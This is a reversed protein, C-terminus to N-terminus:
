SECKSKTESLCDSLWIALQEVMIDSTFKHLFRQKAKDALNERLTKDSLMRELAKSLAAVNAPPIVLAEEENCVSETNGGVDTSIISKKARMAELLAISHNEALSPLVFIDLAALCDNIDSHYGVFRTVKSLGKNDALTMLKDTISGSGIVIFRADPFKPKIEAFAEILFEIGKIPELRSVVGFAVEHSEIGWAERLVKGALTDVNLLPIGNHIVYVKNTEVGHEILHKKSYEAVSVIQDVRHKFLWITASNFLKGVLRRAASNGHYEGHYSALWTLDQKLFFSGLSYIIHGNFGHTMIADPKEQNILINLKRIWSLDLRSKITIFCMDLSSLTQTDLGWDEGHICISKIEIKQYTEVQELLEAYKAVGGLSFGWHISLIKSNKGM